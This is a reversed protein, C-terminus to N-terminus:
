SIIKNFVIMRFIEEEFEPEFHKLIENRLAEYIPIKLGDSDVWKIGGEWYSFRYLADWFGRLYSLTKGVEPFTVWHGEYKLKM